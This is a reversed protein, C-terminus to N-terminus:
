RVASSQPISVLTSEGVSSSTSVTLLKDFIECLYGYSNSIKLVLLGPLWTTCLPVIVEDAHSNMFRGDAIWGCSNVEGLFAGGWTVPRPQCEM